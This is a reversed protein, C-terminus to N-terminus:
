VSKLRAQSYVPGPPISEPLPISLFTYKGRGTGGQPPDWNEKQQPGMSFQFVGKGFTITPFSKLHIAEHSNAYSASPRQIEMCLPQIWHLFDPFHDGSSGKQTGFRRSHPWGQPICPVSTRQEKHVRPNQQQKIKLLIIVQYKTKHNNGLKGCYVCRYIQWFM